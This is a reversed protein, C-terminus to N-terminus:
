GGLTNEGRAPMRQKHDMKAQGNVFVSPTQKPVYEPLLEKLKNRIAFTDHTGAIRYLDELLGDLWHSLEVQNKKGNWGNSRLVMIKEYKTSVVVEDQTILEEYLKEGERLGTFIIEVDKGLTKGSLRVLEEAMKAIKVPTGMELIFIEDGQGLGGAQLILQAAEPITMFYRTVEPHTVTIPGGQELQRRFLPLV